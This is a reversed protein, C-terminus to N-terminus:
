YITQLVANSFLFILHNKSIYVWGTTNVDNVHYIKGVLVSEDHKYM